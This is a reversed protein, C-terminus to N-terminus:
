FGFATYKVCCVNYKSCPSKGTKTDIAVPIDSGMCNTRCVGSVDVQMAWNAKCPEGAGLLYDAIVTRLELWILHFYGRLFESLPSM